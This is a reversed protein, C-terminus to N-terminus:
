TRWLRQEYWTIIDAAARRGENEANDGESRRGADGAVGSRGASFMM